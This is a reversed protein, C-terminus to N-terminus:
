QDRAPAGLAFEITGLGEDKCTDIVDVVDRWPVRADADVLVSPPPTGLRQADDRAGRLVERLQADGDVLRHGFRRRVTQTADNWELAIRPSAGADSPGVGVGKSKPLWVDFGGELQKFKFSIMFFVCLCFIVDVLPTVNVAIPNDADGDISTAAM